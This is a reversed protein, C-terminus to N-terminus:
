PNAPNTPNAPNCAPNSLGAAIQQLGQLLGGPDSPGAAGVPHDIGLRLTQLGAYAKPLGEVGALQALGGSILGLGSALDQSGSVLDPDGKPSNFGNALQKNGDAIQGVGDALEASGSKARQLGANLEDAGAAAQGAGDALQAAGPAAENALGANLQEAGDRLQILGSLLDSAGDRLRLLNTDIQEAGATLTAGTEAGGQYSAAATSLSPNKLPQVVAISVTAKPIIADQVEATYGFEATASGVPPLLTMTFTLRTAGRGDASATAQDSRVSYFEKPLLTVLSGVLPMPVDVQREVQNGFGDTVTVTTPESTINEVKYNVELTGSKGVLDEPDEYTEGNLKYTPTIRVPLDEEPFTSVTRAREEGDVTIRKVAKGDEVTVGKLGDLNRLGDTGVPNEITVTGKGTATIQDYIRAVKVEGTPTLYAQVTERDVVIVEGNAAMAPAASTLSLLAATTAAGALLLNRRTRM